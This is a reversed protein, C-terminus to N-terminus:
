DWVANPLFPKWQDDFRCNDPARLFMPAIDDDNHGAYGCGIKTVLFLKDPNSRAFTIFDQVYLYIRLLSMREYPTVKTPIAYSRGMFGKGRGLIAGYHKRAHLAAGKGHIGQLNSGFVFIGKNYIKNHDSFDM